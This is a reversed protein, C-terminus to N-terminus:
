VSDSDPLDEGRVVLPALTAGAGRVETSVRRAPQLEQVASLCETKKVSLFTYGRKEGRSLGFYAGCEEKQNNKKERDNKQKERGERSENEL